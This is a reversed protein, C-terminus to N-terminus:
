HTTKEQTPESNVDKSERAIAIASCKPKEYVQGMEVTISAFEAFPRKEKLLTDLNFRLKSYLAEAISEATPEGVWMIIDDRESLFSHVDGEETYTTDRYLLLPDDQNLFCRHDYYDITPKLAADIIAFDVVMGSSPNPEGSVTAIVRWTHGHLRSCKGPHHMLRHASDFTWERTLLVRAM